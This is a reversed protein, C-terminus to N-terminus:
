KGKEFDSEWPNVFSNKPYSEQFGTDQFGTDQFGTNSYGNSYQNNKNDYGGNFGDDINSSFGPVCLPQEGWWANKHCYMYKREPRDLQYGDNCFYEVFLHPKGDLSTSMANRRANAVDPATITGDHSLCSYDSYALWENHSSSSDPKPEDGPFHM